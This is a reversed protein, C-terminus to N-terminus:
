WLLNALGGRSSMIVGQHCFGWGWRHVYDRALVPLDYNVVLDVTPIDLGRSAVDTALLVPVAGSKFKDLAALRRRQSQHSHLAACPLELEELLLSLLHCGQM